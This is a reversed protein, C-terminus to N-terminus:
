IHILSLRAGVGELAKRAFAPAIRAFLARQVFRGMQQAQGRRRSTYLLCREERTMLTEFLKEGHRTGIIQTGTDGLRQQVAKARDRICM